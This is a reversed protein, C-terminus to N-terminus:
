RLRRGVAVGLQFALDQAVVFERASVALKDDAPAGGARTAMEAEVLRDFVMGKEELASTIDGFEVGTVVGEAAATYTELLGAAKGKGTGAKM